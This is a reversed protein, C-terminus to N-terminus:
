SAGRVIVMVLYDEETKALAKAPADLFQQSFQCPPFAHLVGAADKDRGGGVPLSIVGAAQKQKLYSVLNKLPRETSSGTDCPGEESTGPVALLVAYGAPGAAKIRRSVEDLKPQDLRLRQTIKLQPAQGGAAGDALLGGAVGLDGDLLHMSTPFSSNKLQLMGHWALCLQSGLDSIKLTKYESEAGPLARPETRTGAAAAATAVGHSKAGGRGSAHGDAERSRRASGGGSKASSSGNNSGGGSVSLAGM